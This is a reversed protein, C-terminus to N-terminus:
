HVLEIGTIMTTAHNDLMPRVRQKGRRHDQEILNNLYHNTREHLTAPLISEEQLEGVAVHSAAYSDLTLKQPIDRRKLM